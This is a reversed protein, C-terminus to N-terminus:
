GLRGHGDNTQSGLLQLAGHVLTSQRQLELRLDVHRRAPEDARLREHPPRMRTVAQDAGAVDRRQEIEHLRHHLAEILLRRRKPNDLLDDQLYPNRQVVWIDGLVEYLMRASRGTQRSARLEDLLQWSEEGQLRIVIERDSKLVMSTQNVPAAENSSTAVM